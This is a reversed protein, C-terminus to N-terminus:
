SEVLIGLATLAKAAGLETIGNELDTDEDYTFCEDAKENALIRKLPEAIKMSSEISEQVHELEIGLETRKADDLATQKLLREIRFKENYLGPIGKLADTWQEKFSQILPQTTYLKFYEEIMKEGTMSEERLQSYVTGNARDVPLSEGPSLLGLKPALVLRLYDGQHSPQSIPKKGEKDAIINDEGVLNRSLQGDGNLVDERKKLYTSYAAQALGKVNQQADNDLEEQSQMFAQTSGQMAETLVQDNAPMQLGENLFGAHIGARKGSACTLVNVMFALTARGHPSIKGSAWEKLTADANETLDVLAKKRAESLGEVNTKITRLRELSQLAGSSLHADLRRLAGTENSRALARNFGDLKASLEMLAEESAADGFDVPVANLAGDILAIDYLLQADKEQIGADEDVDLQAEDDWITSLKEVVARLEYTTRNFPQDAPPDIVVRLAAIAGEIKGLVNNEAHMYRCLANKLLPDGLAQTQQGIEQGLSQLQAYTANPLAPAPVKLALY